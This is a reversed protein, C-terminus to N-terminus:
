EEGLYSRKARAEAELQAALDDFSEFRPAGPRAAHEDVANPVNREMAVADVVASAVSGGSAEGAPPPWASVYRPTEGPGSADIWAVHGTGPERVDMHIFSSNPYYGCGTDPLTKCFAVLDENRVGELRFDLARGHSHYSGGRTPRYGSVVLVRPLTPKANNAHTTRKGGSQAAPKKAFHDVVKQLREVLRPDIRRVGPAIQPGKEKALAAVSATPWRASIPRSLISLHEVALPAVSGDCQTLPFTAKEDFHLV